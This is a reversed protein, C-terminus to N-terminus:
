TSEIPVFAGAGTDRPKFFNLAYLPFRLCFDIGQQLFLGAKGSRKLSAAPADKVLGRLGVLGRDSYTFAVSKAM